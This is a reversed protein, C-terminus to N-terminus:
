VSFAPDNRSSAIALSTRLCAWFILTLLDYKRPGTPFEGIIVIVKALGQMGMALCTSARNRATWFSSLCSRIDFAFLAFFLYPQLNHGSDNANHTLKWLFRVSMSPKRKHSHLHRRMRRWFFLFNSTHPISGWAEVISFNREVM